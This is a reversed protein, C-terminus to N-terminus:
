TCVASYGRSADTAFRSLWSAGDGFAGFSRCRVFVWALLPIYLRFVWATAFRLALSLERWGWVGLLFSVIKM